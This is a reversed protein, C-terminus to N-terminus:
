RHFYPFRHQQNGNTQVAQAHPQWGGASRQADGGACGGGAGHGAHQRAPYQDTQGITILVEDKRKM